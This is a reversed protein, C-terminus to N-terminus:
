LAADISITSTHKKYFSGPSTAGNRAYGFQLSVDFRDSLQKSLKFSLFTQEYEDIESLGGQFSALRDLYKRLQFNGFVQGDVGKVLHRVLLFRFRHAGYEYGFSNTTNRIHSYTFQALMGQYLQTELSIVRQLDAQSFREPVILQGTQSLAPRDYDVWSWTVGIRTHFKRTKGYVCEFGMERLVIEPLAIDRSDDAGVRAKALATLGDTLRGRVNASLSGRLYGEEGPVHNVQKVKLTGGGGFHVRKNLDVLGNLVLSNAVVDGLEPLANAATWYRKIGGRYGLHIYGPTKKLVYGSSAIYIRSIWGSQPGAATEFLNSDHELGVVARM